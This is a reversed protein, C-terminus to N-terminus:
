DSRRIEQHNDTAHWLGFLVAVLELVEETQRALGGAFRGPIEQRVVQHELLQVIQGEAVLKGFLCVDQKELFLDLRSLLNSREVDQKACSCVPFDDRSKPGTFECFSVLYELFVPISRLDNSRCDDLVLFQQM